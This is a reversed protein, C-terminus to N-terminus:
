WRSSQINVSPAMPYIPIKIMPEIPINVARKVSMPEIPINVAPKM